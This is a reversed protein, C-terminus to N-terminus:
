SGELPPMMLILALLATREVLKSVRVHEHRAHAGAGLAGLGDVTATYFSTTNGDSAGGSEADGLELGLRKGCGQVAEWLIRNRPTAEMPAVDIVQEIELRTGPTTPELGQITEKAWQGDAQTKVRVDVSARCEAAVVNTSTGGSVTGVNVTTGREVDTLAHLSQIVHAMEQIASAGEGPALGSHAARGVVRIDFRIVGRRTTKILGEPGLAPELVLVRTSVQALRAVHDRSEPSGIEEDSNLFITPAVAPELGLESLAELAFVMQVIGAKMDFVGPGRIVDEAENWEVPMDRVTGIPWVTDTHGLLLQVPAEETYGAKAPAEGRSLYLHGGSEEGPFLQAVFGIAELRRSVIEQIAGQPEPMLSPSENDALEILLRAIDDRREALYDGVGAVELDTM